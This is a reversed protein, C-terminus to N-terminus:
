YCFYFVCFVIWLINGVLFLITNREYGKTTLAFIQETGFLKSVVSSVASAILLPIFSPITFEPLLVEVAFIVGAIPSNFIASIGGAAGCALLLTRTKYNLKLDNATNLGVASGAVVIPAELGVSGGFGVTLASSFIQSIINHRELDIRNRSVLYILDSLGKRFKGKHFTNIYLYTLAIGILPYIFYFYNQYSIRFNFELLNQIFKVSSKLVVSILGTMVGIFISVLVLFTKEDMHRIRFELIRKFILNLNIKVYRYM